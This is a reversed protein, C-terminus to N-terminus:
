AQQQNGASTSLSGKKMKNEKLVDLADVRLTKELFMINNSFDLLKSQDITIRNEEPQAQSKVIFCPSDEVMDSLVWGGNDVCYAVVKEADLGLLKAAQDVYLKSYLKSLAGLRDRRVNEELMNVMNTCLELSWASDDAAAFFGTYERKILCTVLAFCSDIEDQIIEVYSPDLQQRIFKASLYDGLLCYALMEVVVSHVFREADQVSKLKRGMRRSWERCDDIM